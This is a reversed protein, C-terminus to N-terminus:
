SRNGHIDMKFETKEVGIDYFSIIDTDEIFEFSHNVNKEIAFFDKEKILYKEKVNEKELLLNFSGKTIFFLERNHIHYHDGRLVGAKTTIFNVQNWGENVLQTLCGRNDEFVFDPQYFTILQSKNENVPKM